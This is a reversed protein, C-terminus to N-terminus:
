EKDAGRRETTNEAAGGGRVWADKKFKWLRGMRHAPMDHKNIWRYVIDSSVRLYKDIEDVSLWRDEIEAM